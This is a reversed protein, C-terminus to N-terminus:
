ITGGCGGWWGSRPPLTAEVWFFPKVRFGQLKSVQFEFASVKFTSIRFSSVGGAIMFREEVLYM